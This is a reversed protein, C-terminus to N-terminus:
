KNWLLDKSQMRLIRSDKFRQIMNKFSQANLNKWTGAVVLQVKKWTADDCLEKLESLAEIALNLNKKREYRNISLFVFETAPPIKNDLPNTSQSTPKTFGKTNLSPYLIRPKIHSLSTFTSTFISSTFQSNVLVEDAM